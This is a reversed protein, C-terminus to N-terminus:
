KWKAEKEAMKSTTPYTKRTTRYSHHLEPWKFSSQSSKRKEKATGKFKGGSVSKSAFWMSLFWISVTHWQWKRSKRAMDNWIRFLRNNLLSLSSKIASIHEVWFSWFFEFDSVVCWEYGSKNIATCKNHRMESNWEMNRNHHPQKKDDINKEM